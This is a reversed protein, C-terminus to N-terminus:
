FFMKVHGQEATGGLKCVNKISNIADNQRCCESMVNLNLLSGRHM